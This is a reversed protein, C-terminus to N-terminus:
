DETGDYDCVRAVRELSGGPVHTMPDWPFQHAVMGEVFAQESPPDDVDFGQDRVCEAVRLWKDYFKKARAETM